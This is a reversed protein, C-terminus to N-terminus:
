FTSVALVQTASEATTALVVSRPWGSSLRNSRRQQDAKSDRDLRLGTSVLRAVSFTRGLSAVHAIPIRVLRSPSFLPSSWLRRLGGTALKHGLAQYLDRVRPGGCHLASRLGGALETPVRPDQLRGGRGLDIALCLPANRASRACWFSDPAITACSKQCSIQGM